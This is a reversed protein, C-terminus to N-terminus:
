RNRRTTLPLRMASILASATATAASRDLLERAVQRIIRMRRVQEELEDATAVFGFYQEDGRVQGGLLPVRDEGVGRAGDRQDIPERWWVSNM